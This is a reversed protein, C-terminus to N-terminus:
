TRISYVNDFTSQNEIRFSLLYFRRTEINHVIYMKGRRLEIIALRCSAFHCILKWFQVNVLDKICKQDVEVAIKVM